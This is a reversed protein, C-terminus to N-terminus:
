SVRTVIGRSRAILMAVIATLIMEPVM